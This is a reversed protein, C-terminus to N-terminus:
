PNLVCAHDLVRTDSELYPFYLVNGCVYMFQICQVLTHSCVHYVGVCPYSQVHYVGVRAHSYVHYVGVCM